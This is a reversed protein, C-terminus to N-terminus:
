CGEKMSPFFPTTSYATTKHPKNWVRVEIRYQWNKRKNWSTKLDHHCKKEMINITKNRRGLETAQMAAGCSFPTSGYYRCKGPSTAKNKKQGLFMTYLHMPMSACSPCPVVRRSSIERFSANVNGSICLLDM